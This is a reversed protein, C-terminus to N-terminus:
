FASSFPTQSQRQLITITAQSKGLYLQYKYLIITKPLQRTKFERITTFSLSLSFHNGYIILSLQRHYELITTQLLQRLYELINTQSLGHYDLITTQSLRLYNDLVTQPLQRLHSQNVSGKIEVSRSYLEQQPPPHHHHLTM